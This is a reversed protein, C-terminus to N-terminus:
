PRKPESPTSMRKRRAFYRCNRGFSHCLVNPPNCADWRPATPPTRGPNRHSISIFKNSGVGFFRTYRPEEKPSQSGARSFFLFLKATTGTKDTASHPHKRLYEPQTHPIQRKYFIVARRTRPIATEASLKHVAPLRIARGRQRQIYVIPGYLAHQFNGLVKATMM